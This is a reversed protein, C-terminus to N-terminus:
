ATARENRYAATVSPQLQIRRATRAKIEPFITEACDLVVQRFINMAVRNNTELAALGLQMRLLSEEFPLYVIGPFSYAATSATAIVIREGAAAFAFQVSCSYPAELFRPSVGFPTFVKQLFPQRSRCDKLRSAILGDERLDEISIRSRKALPSEQAVIAVLPEKCIPDFRMGNIPLPRVMLLADVRPQLLRELDFLAVTRDHCHLGETEEVVRVIAVERRVGAGPVSCVGIPM